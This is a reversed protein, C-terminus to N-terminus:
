TFDDLFLYMIHLCYAFCRDFGRSKTILKKYLVFINNPNIELIKEGYVRGIDYQKQMTYCRVLENIAIENNNDVKLIEFAIQQIQEIIEDKNNENLEIQKIQKMKKLLKLIKKMKDKEEDEQIWNAIKEKTISMNCLKKIEEETKGQRYLNIALNKIEKFDM